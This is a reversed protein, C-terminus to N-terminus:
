RSHSSSQTRSQIRGSILMLHKLTHKLEEDHDLEEVTIHMRYSWYHEPNSPVNITEEEPDRQILTKSMGIIDQLSFIALISPSDLHQKVVRRVIDPTCQPFDESLGLMTSCYKKRRIEDEQYWARFNSTDHSSPSAVTMYGYNEPDGFEANEESPMRQIRLGIIGLEGMIPHVCPPILGLDEGCVFMDTAHQMMPLVKLAQQRWVSDSRLGFFSEDHMSRLFRKWHSDELYQFSSTELLNFRPFYNGDPCDGDKVLCVNQVLQILISKVRETDVATNDPLGPRSRLAFIAEESAYREKFRYRDGPCPELFREKLEVELETDDLLETLLKDTIFPEALRDIDWLGQSELEKRTYGVSPRFRGLIGTKCSAPLEWIRFFGLIHDIRYAQFYQAMHSLRRRWWAYDDRAMAEWNYTPFGWNQGKKDFYDPPAGTNTHMRFLTPHLWTDVSCTDVGIPLDGKLVVGMERLSTSAADLQQHLKFQLYCYFQITQHWEQEPSSLHDFMAPTPEAYVGWTWHKSTRFLDRLFCFVAYPVLWQSNANKFAVYDDTDMDYKGFAEFIRRSTLLKYSMTKEYDVDPGEFGKSSVIDQLILDHMETNMDSAGVAKVSRLYSSELTSRLNIYMPHLAFVCLSSYPYSDRWNKQVSTDCVPLIQLLSFGCDRCWAGLPILDTFEGCGMADSDKTRLSFIPVAVGSGRWRDQRRVFGDYKAISISGSVVPPLVLLRSEGSELILDSEPRGIAYKYTVPFVGRPIKIKAHWCGKSVRDMWVVQKLQWNGLGATGGTVCLANNPESDIELDMAHLHVTVYSGEEEDLNCSHVTRCAGGVDDQVAHRRGPMVVSSFLSSRLVNAPHSRDVWACSVYVMHSGGGSGHKRLVDMQSIRLVHKNTEFKVLEHTQEKVVAFQFSIVYFPGDNDIDEIELTSTPFVVTTEWLLTTDHTHQGSGNLGTGRVLMENTKHPSGVMDMSEGVPHGSKDHMGANGGVLGTGGPPANKPLPRCVAEKAHELRYDGLVPGDGTVVIREGWETFYKTSFHVTVFSAGHGENTRTEPNIESSGPILLTQDDMFINRSM